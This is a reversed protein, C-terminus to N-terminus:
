QLLSATKTRIWVIGKTALTVSELLITSHKATRISQNAFQSLMLTIEKLVNQASIQKLIQKEAHQLLHHFVSVLLNMLLTDETVHPAIDVSIASLKASIM